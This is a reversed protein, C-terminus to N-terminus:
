ESTGGGCLMEAIENESAYFSTLIKESFATGIFMICPSPSHDKWEETGVCVSGVRARVAAALLPGDDHAQFPM